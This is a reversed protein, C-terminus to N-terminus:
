SAGRTRVANGSGASKKCLVMIFHSKGPKFCTCFARFTTKWLCSGGDLTSFQLCLLQRCHSTPLIPVFEHSLYLEPNAALPNLLSLFLVNSCAFPMTSYSHLRPFATTDCALSLLPMGIACEQRTATHQPMPKAVNWKTSSGCSHLTWLGPRLNSFNARWSNQWCAAFHQLCM